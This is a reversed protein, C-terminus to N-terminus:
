LWYQPTANVFQTFSVLLEGFLEESALSFFDPVVAMDHSNSNYADLLEQRVSAKLEVRHPAGEVIFQELVGRAALIRKQENRVRQWENVADFFRVSELDKKAKLFRRFRERMSADEDLVHRLRAAATLRDNTRRTLTNRGGIVVPPSQFQQM